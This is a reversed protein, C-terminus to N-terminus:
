LVAKGLIALVVLGLASLVVIVGQRVRETDYCGLARLRTELRIAASGRAIL